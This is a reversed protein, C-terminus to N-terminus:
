GRKARPALLARFPTVASTYTYFIGYREIERASERDAAAAAAENEPTFDPSSSLFTHTYSWEPDLTWSATVYVPRRTVNLVNNNHRLRGRHILTDGCVEPLCHLTGEEEKWSHHPVYFEEDIRGRDMRMIEMGFAVELWDYEADEPLHLVREKTHEDGPEFWSGPGAFRGAGLTRADSVGTHLSVDEDFELAERREKLGGKRKATFEVAYGYVSYEDNIVRAAVKGINKAHLRVPLHVIPRVPDHVPKGFRATLRLLVPTASPQYVASYALNVTALLATAAVGAAFRQPHPVGKWAGERVLAQLAWVAWFWLPLYMLLYPTYEREQFWMFLLLSHTALAILVGLLVVAGTYRFRRKGRFDLAALAAVGEVAGFLVFAFGAMRQAFTLAGFADPIGIVALLVMSGLLGIVLFGGGTRRRWTRDPWVDSGGGRWQVFRRDRVDLDKPHGVSRLVKRLGRLSWASGVTTGAVSIARLGRSDPPQVVVKPGKEM